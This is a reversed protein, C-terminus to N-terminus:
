YKLIKDYIMKFEQIARQMWKEKENKNWNGNTNKRPRLHVMFEILWDIMKEFIFWSFKINCYYYFNSFEKIFKVTM